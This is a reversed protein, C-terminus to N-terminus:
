EGLVLIAIRKAREETMPHSSLYKELKSAKRKDLITLANALELPDLKYSKLLKVAFEDAQSEQSQSYHAEYLSLAITNFVGPDAGLTAMSIMSLLSSRILNQTGHDYVLHGLEHAIIAQIQRETLPKLLGETVIITRPLLAFANAIEENGFGAKMSRHLIKIDLNLQGKPYIQMMLNHLFKDKNNAPTSLHSSELIVMVQNGIKDKISTSIFPQILKVTINVGYQYIFLTFFIALVSVLIIYSLKKETAGAVREFLGAGSRFVESINKDYPIEILAGDPLKIKIPSRGVIPSIKYQDFRLTKSNINHGSVIISQDERRKVSVDIAISSQGDFYKGKYIM